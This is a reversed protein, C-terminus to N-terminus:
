CQTIPLTLRFRAGPEGPPTALALEGGLRRALGRALALGLGVGSNGDGGNRHGREFAAFIARRDAAPIGPGHDSVELALTGNDAHSSLEITRDSAAAAYKAANDVLNFLIQGVAEEDVSIDAAPPDAIDLRMGARTALQTLGPRHRDLLAAVTTRQPTVVGHGRELRAYALVNEVVRALRDSEGRLTQLYSARQQEDEVWGEALMESYMRFTTLPTRLEHTLASAFRARREGFRISARLTVAVAALGLLVAVWALALNVQAAGIGASVSAAAVPADLAVPISALRNGGDEARGAFATTVPRLTAHPFLDAISALLAARLGNWDCLFGQLYSGDPLLVRRVFLLETEAPTRNMWVPVLPGVAFTVGPRPTADTADLGPAALNQVYTQQRRTWEYQSREEPSATATAPTAPPPEIALNTEFASVCELLAPGTGVLRRVGELELAREALTESALYVGEARDRLNGAPVQPSSLEGDPTVQFHLRVYESRFSLLPSPTLVEGPAIESLLKTYAQEVEYFSQFDGPPRAAERALHPALWSEMRWLAVRISAEHDAEARARREGAELRLMQGSVWALVGILGAACVAFIIWWTRHRMM